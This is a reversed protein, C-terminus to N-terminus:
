YEAEENGHKEYRQKVSQQYHAQARRAGFSVVSALVLVLFLLFHRSEDGEDDGNVDYAPQRIPGELDM